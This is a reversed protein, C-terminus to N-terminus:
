LALNSTMVGVEQRVVTGGRCQGNVNHMRIGECSNDCWQAELVTLNVLKKDKNM